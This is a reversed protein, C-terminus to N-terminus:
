DYLTGEELKKIRSEIERALDRYHGSVTSSPYVATVPAAKTSSNSVASSTPIITDFYMKEDWFDAKKQRYISDVKSNQAIDCFFFGLLDLKRDPRDGFDKKKRRSIHSFANLVGEAGDMADEEPPLPILLYDSAYLYHGLLSNLGPKTDIIIYDFEGDEKLGFLFEKMVDRAIDGKREFESYVNELERSSCMIKLNDYKRVVPSYPRKYDAENYFLSAKFEIDKDQCEADFASKLYVALTNPANSTVGYGFRRSLNSQPDGDILLVKKGFTRAFVDGIAAVTTTKGVGGKNNAVVIIKTKSM